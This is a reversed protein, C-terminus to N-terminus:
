EYGNEKRFKDDIIEKCVDFLIIKNRENNLDRIYAELANIEDDIEKIRDSQAKTM